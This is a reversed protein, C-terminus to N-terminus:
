WLLPTLSVRLLCPPPRLVGAACKTMSHRIVGDITGSLEGGEVHAVFLNMTTAATCVALSDFRDGHVVVVDPMLRRLVPGLKLLALGMSDVMMTLSDGAALTSILEARQFELAIEEGTDGFERLMHSGMVLLQLELAPDAEVQRCIPGLKSWDARNCTAVCIKRPRRHSANCTAVTAPSGRGRGMSFNPAFQRKLNRDTPFARDTQDGPHSTESGIRDLRM